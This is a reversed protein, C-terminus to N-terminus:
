GGDNEVVAAPIVSAPPVTPSETPSKRTSGEFRTAVVGGLIVVMAVVGGAVLAARRRRRGTPAWAAPEVMLSRLRRDVEPRALDLVRALVAIDFERLVIPRGPDTRRLSYVLSLYAALVDDARPTRDLRATAGAVVLEGGELDVAVQGRPPVLADSTVGYAGLVRDRESSTLLRDGAEVRALEISDLPSAAAVDELSRGNSVRIEALLTGLRRSPVTERTETAV